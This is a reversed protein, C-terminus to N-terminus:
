IRGLAELVRRPAIPLHAVRAGFPRLADNVANLVAAASGATGAEGAGKAGISTGPDPVSIHHVDIDPMESALPVLYDALSGTMLEGGPGYLIEEFLAAGLGQVVGGRIQEDLLRPNIVTGSDHVVVHRLLKVTGLGPDLEVV